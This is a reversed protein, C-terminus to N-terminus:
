IGKQIEQSRILEVETHICAIMQEYEYIIREPESTRGSRALERCILNQHTTWRLGNLRSTNSQLMQNHYALRSIMIGKTILYRYKESTRNVRHM